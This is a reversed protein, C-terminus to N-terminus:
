SKFSKGKEQSAPLTVTTGCEPCVGSTNGELNYSCIPCHGAKKSRNRVARLLPLLSLIVTLFWCPASVETRRASYGPSRAGSWRLPWFSFGFGARKWYITQGARTALISGGRVPRSFRNSAPTADFDVMWNWMVGTAADKTNPNSDSEYAFSLHGHDCFVELSTVRATRASVTYSDRRIDDAVWYSRLLVLMTAICLLLSIASALTFLRRIV